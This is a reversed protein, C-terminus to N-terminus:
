ERLLKESKLIIKESCASFIKIMAELYHLSGHSKARRRLKWVDLDVPILGKGMIQQLIEALVGKDSFTNEGLVHRAVISNKMNSIYYTCWIRKCEREWIKSVDVLQAPEPKLFAFKDRITLTEAKTVESANVMVAVDQNQASKFCIKSGGIRKTNVTTVLSVTPTQLSNYFENAPLRIWCSLAVSLYSNAEFEKSSLLMFRDLQFVLRNEELYCLQSHFLRHPRPRSCMIDIQKQKCLFQATPPYVVQLSSCRYSVVRNFFLKLCCIHIELFGISILEYRNM